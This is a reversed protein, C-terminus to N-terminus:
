YVGPAKLFGVVASIISHFSPGIMFVFSLLLTALYILRGGVTDLMILYLLGGVLCIAAGMAVWNLVSTVQFYHHKQARFNADIESLKQTYEPPRPPQPRNPLKPPRYEDKIRKVYVDYDTNYLGLMEQYYKMQLEYNKVAVEHREVEHPYDKKLRQLDYKARTEDASFRIANLTLVESRLFYTSCLLVLFGVVSVVKALGICRSNGM